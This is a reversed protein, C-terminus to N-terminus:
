YGTALTVAVGSEPEANGAIKVRYDVSIRATAAGVRVDMGATPGADIRAAGRQAGAWVGAGARISGLDFDALQRTAVAQGDIFATAFRGGVYGGQAYGEARLGLPLNIAPLESHAFVAPRTETGAGNDSLRIEGALRLPVSAVPRASLGAAVERQRINIASTTRVYAQPARPSNQAIRYRVVAGFQSSGYAAPSAGLLPSAVHNARFFIWGDMGWRSVTGTPVSSNLNADIQPDSKRGILAATEPAMPLTTMAALWLLQNGAALTPSTGVRFVDVRGPPSILNNRDTHETGAPLAYSGAAKRRSVLTPEPEVETRLGAAADAPAAAVLDPIATEALARIAPFPSEWM